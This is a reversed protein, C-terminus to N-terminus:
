LIKFNQPRCSEPHDVFRRFKRVTPAEFENSEDFLIKELSGDHMQQEPSPSPSSSWVDGPFPRSVGQQQHQKQQLKSVAVDDCVVGQGSTKTCEVPFPCSVLPKFPANWKGVTRKGLSVTPLLRVRYHSPVLRFDILIRTLFSSKYSLTYVLERVLLGECSITSRFGPPTILM